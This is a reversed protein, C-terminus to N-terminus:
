TNLFLIRLEPARDSCGHPIPLIMYYVVFKQFASTYIVEHTKTCLKYNPLIVTPSKLM